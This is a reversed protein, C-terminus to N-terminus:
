SYRLYLKRVEERDRLVEATLRTGLATVGPDGTLGTLERGLGELVREAQFAEGLIAGWRPASPPAPAPPPPPSKGLARALPALDRTALQKAQALGLLAQRLDGEAQGAAAEYRSAQRATAAAFRGVLDALVLRRPDDPTDYASPPAADSVTM